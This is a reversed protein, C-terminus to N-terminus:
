LIWGEQSYYSLMDLEDQAGRRPKKGSVFGGSPIFKSDEMPERGKPASGGQEEPAMIACKAVPPWIELLWLGACSDQVATKVPRAGPLRSRKM